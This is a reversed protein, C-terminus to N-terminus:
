LPKIIKNGDLGPCDKKLVKEVRKGPISNMRNKFGTSLKNKLKKWNKEM